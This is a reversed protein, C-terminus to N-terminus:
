NGMLLIILFSTKPSPNQYLALLSDQVWPDQLHSCSRPNSLLQSIRSFRNTGSHVLSNEPVTIQPSLPIALTSRLTIILSTYYSIGQTSLHHHFNGSKSNRFGLQNHFESPHSYFINLCLPKTKLINPQEGM